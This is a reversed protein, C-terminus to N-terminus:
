WNEKRRIQSHTLDQLERHIFRWLEEHKRLRLVGDRVVRKERIVSHSFGALQEHTFMQLDRHREFAIATRFVMNAPIRQAAFRGIVSLLPELRPHLWLTARCARVDVTLSHQAAGSVGFLATLTSNLATHTYPVRDSLRLLLNQLRSDKSAGFPPSIGFLREWRSLGSGSDDAHNVFSNDLARSVAANLADIESGQARLVHSIAANEAAFQPLHKQLEIL